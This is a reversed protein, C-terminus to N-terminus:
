AWHSGHRTPHLPVFCPWPRTLLGLRGRWTPVIPLVIAAPKFIHIEQSAILHRLLASTSKRASRVLQTGVVADGVEDRPARAALAACLL